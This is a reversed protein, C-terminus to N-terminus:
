SRAAASQEGSPKTNSRHLHIATVAKTLEENREEADFIGDGRPESEFIIDGGADPVAAYFWGHRLRLYGVQEDGLYVDYQEPCANCTKELTYGLINM